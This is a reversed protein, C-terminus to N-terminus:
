VSELHELDDLDKHRGAFKKATRLHNVHIIKMSIGDFIENRAKQFVEEFTFNALKVMLDIAVPPKGFTFVDMENSNIFDNKGIADLPLGFDAFAKLMNIYNAETPELFLDLDGTVRNYGYFIVAYGGVLIYRVEANNLALLFERFDDNFINNSM